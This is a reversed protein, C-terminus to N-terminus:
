FYFFFVAKNKAASARRMNGRQLRDIGNKRCKFKKM